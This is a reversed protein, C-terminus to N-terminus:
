SSDTQVMLEYAQHVIIFLTEDHCEKGYERSKPHQTDLLKELMLYESYYVPKQGAEMTYFRKLVCATM